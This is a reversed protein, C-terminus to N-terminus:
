SKAKLLRHWLDIVGLAEAWREIHGHDLNDRQVAVIGEVDTLQRESGGARQAWELKAVITDEPSALQVLTGGKLRVPRARSFESRSFPREKRIILDIKMGTAPDIANFQRRRALANTAHGPDVYLGAAELRRVFDALSGADPDIVIDVDQSMRPRGHHSSALSGAVMYPVCAENLLAVVRGTVEEDPTM